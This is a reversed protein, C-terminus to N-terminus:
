AGMRNIITDLMQDVNSIFRAAAQYGHQYKMMQAIEEDMNVGSISARTDRLDKMLLEQSDLSTQAEEGKLGITAVQQAFFDDLTATQGLMVTTNRISAIQLAAEGDGSEGPRAGESFSAAISAPERLLNENIAIYGSPHRMPAVQWQAGNETEAGQLDLVADAQQWNYAGDAGTDSLIGAYGVLFQGSDELSRIVFDPNEMREAPTGKITLQGDRNLRAVVEASSQNIRTVIDNVTDTPNYSVDITGQPGPLTMTGALGVQENAQLANTGTFRFVRSEEFTGDGNADFNGLTNLVFPREVFFDNGSRQNLGYGNSHVENVLDAVNVTMNDLAQIEERLDVDRLEIIAALKGSGFEVQEGSHEWTVMSFGENNPNAELAFERNIRGQVIHFGATHISYEDPDREDVRIDILTGLEEVLMDRRDLLDNPNDGAAQVNVIRENLSSIESTLENVRAVTAQIDDELMSRIQEFGNYRLKIADVLSQGRELVSQRAAMQEPYLSLEQWSEWFKDMLGRVSTEGPEQYVQELMTVYKDRANWYGEGSTNAVIRRELLGDRIREVRAVQVGQGIQGPTEARNLQPRYIAPMASMEVRQRSYGERSANSMNHGITTLGRTHAFLSRKGIEIGAFTSEM